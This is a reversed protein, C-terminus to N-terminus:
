SARFLRNVSKRILRPVAYYPTRAIKTELRQIERQSAGLYGQLETITAHLRNIVDLRAARDNQVTDVFDNLACAPAIPAEKEAPSHTMVRQCAAYLQAASDRWAYARLREKGREILKTRLNEDSFLCRMLGGMASVDTPDCTLVADGGVEPLSSTNSCAVPTGSAFAELLPIGFGEFLSFFLLARARALLVQLFCSRTFGLHRIPLGAFEKQLDEWGEPHGTLVLEVPQETTKLFEAFAQLLRKHNKHPWLNAPFIFYDRDPLSGREADTLSDLSPAKWESRLAPPMLFVDSCRNDSHNLVTQRAHNSITGIAGAEQLATAFCARRNVLVETAFFEPFFEHQLDPILVIQRQMPFVIDSRGPYSRLLVDLQFYGAYVDLLPFFGDRPLTLSRVHAPLKSFLNRNASTGFLTVQCDPWGNFLSDLVGKLLPVLGGTQGETIDFLEVGLRM